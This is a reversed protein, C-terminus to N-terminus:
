NFWIPATLAIQEDLDAELFNASTVKVYYYSKSSVTLEPQWTYSNTSETFSVSAAVQRNNTILEIKKIPENDEITIDFKIVGTKKVVAGMWNNKYRFRILIDPDDTSYIRRAAFAKLLASETLEEALIATRHENDILIHNDLNNTPGVKWGNGLATDYYDIYEGSNNGFNDNGTEIASTNAAGNSYYAVNHLSAGIYGPHNLQIIADTKQLSSFVLQETPYFVTSRLENFNYVNIHGEGGSWEFGRMAVFSGNQTFINAQVGISSFEDGFLYEAHDTISYFDMKAVDRAWAYGEAPTGSGDSYKTHAHMNGFYIQMPVLTTDETNILSTGSSPTNVLPEDDSACSVAILLFVVCSLNLLIQKKM